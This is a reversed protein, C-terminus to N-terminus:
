CEITAELILDKPKIIWDCLSTGEQTLIAIELAINRRAREEYLAKISHDLYIYEKDLFSNLVKIRGECYMADPIAKYEYKIAKAYQEYALQSSGLIVLDLDTLRTHGRDSNHCTSLILDEVIDRLHENLGLIAAHLYFFECSASENRNSDVEYIIDHYLIALCM